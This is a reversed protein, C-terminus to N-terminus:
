SPSSFCGRKEEEGVRSFEEPTRDGLGRPPRSQNYDRRWRELNQKADALSFFRETKLCEDGLRGNFSEIYGNEGPKGPWIFELEVEHEYAWADMAKSYFESGNDVGIGKPLPRQPSLRELCSVVKTGSMSRDAELLYERSYQDVATLIGFARGDVWRDSM